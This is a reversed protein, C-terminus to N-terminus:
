KNTLVLIGAATLGIGVMTKLDYHEKFLFIGVLLLAVMSIAKIMMYNLFPTNFNKDLDIILFSSFVTFLAM